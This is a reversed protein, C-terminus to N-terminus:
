FTALKKMFSKKYRGIVHGDVELIQDGVQLTDELSPETIAAVFM